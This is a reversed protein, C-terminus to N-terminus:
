GGYTSMATSKQSLSSHSPSAALVEEVKDLLQTPSFPKTLYDYAGAEMAKMRDDDKALATLMIVETPSTAPDSKLRRCVEYGDINPMLIDLLVLDLEQQAAIRLAEMGDKATLVQRREDNGLTAEVLARIIEVDDVILVTQSM